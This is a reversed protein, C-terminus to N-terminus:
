HNTIPFSVQEEESENIGPLLDILYEITKSAEVIDRSVQTCLESYSNLSFCFRLFKIFKSTTIFQCIFEISQIDIISISFSCVKGKRKM